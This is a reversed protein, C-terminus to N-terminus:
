SNNRIENIFEAVINRQIYKKNVNSQGNIIFKVSGFMAESFTRFYNFVVRFLGLRMFM